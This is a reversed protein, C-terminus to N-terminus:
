RTGRNSESAAGRPRYDKEEEVNGLIDHVFHGVRRKRAIARGTLVADTRRVSTNSARLGGEIRNKWKGDEFYTHVDGRSVVVGQGPGARRAHHHDHDRSGRVAREM